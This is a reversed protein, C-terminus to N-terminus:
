MGRDTLKTGSTRLWVDKIGRGAEGIVECMHDDLMADEVALKDLPAHAPLTSLHLHFNKHQRRVLRGAPDTVLRTLRLSCFFESRGDLPSLSGAHASWNPSRAPPESSAPRREAHHYVVRATATPPPFPVQPDSDFAPGADM